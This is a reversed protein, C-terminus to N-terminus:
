QQLYVSLGKLVLCAFFVCGAGITLRDCRRVLLSTLETPVRSRRTFRWETRDPFQTELFAAMQPHVNATFPRRIGSTVLLTVLDDSRFTVRITKPRRSRRLGLLWADLVVLLACFGLVVVKPLPGPMWYRPCIVLALAWYLAPRIWVFQAHTIELYGMYINTLSCNVGDIALVSPAGPITEQRSEVLAGGQFTM